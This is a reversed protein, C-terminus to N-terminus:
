SSEKLTQDLKLLGKSDKLLELMKKCLDINKDDVEISEDFYTNETECHSCKKDNLM